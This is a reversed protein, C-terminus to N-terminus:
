RGRALVEGDFGIRWVMGPGVALLTGDHVITRQFGPTWGEPTPPATVRSVEVLQGDRVEILLLGAAHDPREREDPPAPESAAAGDARAMTGHGEFPIVALASTGAWTFAHHDWEVPTSAGPVELVDTRAPAGLDTVDFLSVQLGIIRGTEDAASGVGLLQGETTPHLYASYGPIKLEGRAQPAAPDSLDITYLPDTQEFTVVYGVAGLYRIGRITEGPRGLGTVRGVEALRGDREALVTIRSDTGKSPDQTTTAVRLHGEYRDMAFQNLLNGEVQGSALYTPTGDTAFAHLALSTQQADPEWQHGAVYIRDRSAYVTEGAGFTAAGEVETLPRSPDFAAISVNQWSLIDSPVGVRECHAVPQRTGDDHTAGAIWQDITADRVAERNAEEARAESDAGGSPYVFPITPSGVTVLLVRGGTLRASAYRGDVQMRDVLSPTSPTTVDYVAVVTEPRPYPGIADSAIDDGGRAAPESAPGVPSGLVVLNNGASLMTFPHLIGETSASGVRTPETGSVDLLRIEQQEIVALVDGSLKVHDPEDVGVVQVNTGTDSTYGDSGGATDGASGGEAAVAATDAEVAAGEDGAARDTAPMPMPAGQLGYPGVHELAETRLRELLEPCGPFTELEAAIAPSSGGGGGSLVAVTTLVVTAAALTASRRM